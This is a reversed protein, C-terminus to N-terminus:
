GENYGGPIIRGLSRKDASRVSHACGGAEIVEFVGALEALAEERTPMLAHCLVVKYDDLSMGDV